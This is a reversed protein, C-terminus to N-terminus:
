HLIYPKSFLFQVNDFHTEEPLRKYLHIPQKLDILEICYLIASNAVHIEKAREAIYMWDFLSFGPVSKMEVVKCDFKPLSIVGSSDSRYYKNTLIYEDGEKLGLHALLAAEKEHDRRWMAHQKWDQWDYGYMLYKNKMVDRYPSNMIEMSWRLPVHLIGNIVKQVKANFDVGAARTYDIFEIDPYARQLGEVFQPMVPWLIRYGAEKFRHAITQTFIVDGAGFPQLMVATKTQQSM